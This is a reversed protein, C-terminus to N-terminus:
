KPLSVKLVCRKGINALTKIKAQPLEDQLHTRHQQSCSVIIDAGRPLEEITQFNMVNTANWSIGNPQVKEKNEATVLCPIERGYYYKESTKYIGFSYVPLDTNIKTLFDAVGQGSRLRCVPVAVTFTLLALVIGTGLSLKRVFDYREQLIRATLIALPMFAPLTYTVYKTAMLQFFVNVIVAWQLLFITHDAMPESRLQGWDKKLRYLLVFSWPLFGLLFIVVYYYFVDDRPHESVTARLFNHVGFFGDIFEQGHLQYMQWYWGCGVAAFIVLGPLWNMRLLESAHRRSLLFVVVILGPLLLGIPGKTLVALGALAYCFLYLKRRGENFGIYFSVLSANFFFTMTMDTIIAKGLYWCEISTGFIMMAMLGVREGYVKKAFWYTMIINAIAFVVPFLRAAFENMGLLSFATMLEWYFFIPKDYWYHGHIRPSIWDNAELMEKATLTYNSEVPDTIALLNNGLLLLIILLLLSQWFTRKLKMRKWRGRCYNM